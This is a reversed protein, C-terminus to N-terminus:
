LVMERMKEIRQEYNYAEILVDLEIPFLDGDEERKAVVDEKFEAIWKEWAQSM